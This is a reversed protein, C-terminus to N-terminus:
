VKNPGKVKKPNVTLFCLLDPVKVKSETLSLWKLNVTSM